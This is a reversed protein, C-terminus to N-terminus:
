DVTLSVIRRSRSSRLFAAARESPSSTFNRNYGASQLALSSTFSSRRSSRWGTCARRVARRRIRSWRDAPDGARGRVPRWPGPTKSSCLLEVVLGRHGRVGARRKAHRSSWTRLRVRAADADLHTAPWGVRLDRRRRPASTPGTSPAAARSAAPPAAMSPHAPLVFAASPRPHHRPRRCGPPPALEAPARHPAPRPPPRLRRCPVLLAPSPRHQQAAKRLNGRLLIRDEHLSGRARASRCPCNVKHRRDVGLCFPRGRPAGHPAVPGAAGFAPAMLWRGFPPRAHWRAAPVRVPRNFYHSQAHSSM